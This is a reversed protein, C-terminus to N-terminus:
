SLRTCRVRARFIYDLLLDEVTWWVFFWLYEQDRLQWQWIRRIMLQNQFSSCLWSLHLSCDDGTTTYDLNWDESEEKEKRPCRRCRGETKYGEKWCLKRWEAEKLRRRWKAKKSCGSCDGSTECPSSGIYLLFRAPFLSFDGFDSRAEISWVKFVILSIFPPSSCHFTHFTQPRLATLWKCDETVRWRFSDLPPPNDLTALFINLEPRSRFKEGTPSTFYMDSLRNGARWKWSEPALPPGEGCKGALPHVKVMKVDGVKPIRPKKRINSM